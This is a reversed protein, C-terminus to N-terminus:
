PSDTRPGLSELKDCIPVLGALTDVFEEVLDEDEVLAALNEEPSGGLRTTVELAETVFGEWTLASRVVQSAARIGIFPLEGGAAGLIIDRM